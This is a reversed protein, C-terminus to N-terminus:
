HVFNVMLYLMGIFVVLLLSIWVQYFTQIKKVDLHRSQRIILVVYKVVGILMLWLLSLASFSALLIGIAYAPPKVAEVSLTAMGLIGQSIGLPIVFIMRCFSSNLHSVWKWWFNDNWVRYIPDLSWIGAALLLCAVIVHAIKLNYYLM